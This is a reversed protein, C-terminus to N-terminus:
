LFEPSIVIAEVGPVFVMSATVRNRFTGASDRM